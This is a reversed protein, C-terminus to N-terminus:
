FVFSAFALPPSGDWGSDSANALKTKAKISDGTNAVQPDQDTPRM